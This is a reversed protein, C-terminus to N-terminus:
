EKRNLLSQVQLLPKLYEHLVEYGFDIGAYIAGLYTHSDLRKTRHVSIAPADVTIEYDHLMYRHKKNRDFADPNKSSLSVTFGNAEFITENM